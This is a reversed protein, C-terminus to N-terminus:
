LLNASGLMNFIMQAVESRKIPTQPGINLDKEDLIDEDYCFALASRSWASSKVYDGFQALIDRVGGSDVKTDMGCLDAARAVMVAAEEKTIVGAPNFATASVGSVIGYAHAAGVPGAYWAEGPVDAFKDGKEAKLGLGKVVLAAFEARTMTADPEFTTETKGSVIGRAALAEIAVHNPHANAGSTDEFTKEFYILPQAKVDPHKGGLGEGAKVAGEQPDAVKVADNMRYLSSQGDRARRAAVLSYFAQETAMMNSGGGDQTHLFGQGPSYCALLNDLLTNGNKVFRADDLPLGLETLAVIIQVVSETNAENWSSFGGKDDQKKSMCGLAEDIVRAVDERDQYKALAQLAMGTIDPDSVSDGSSAAATGGLLSFGGDSLQCELIRDVYMERTAQVKAAPNQPLPYNGSDLALLAWVPGNLGQWITKEYDGLPKLLDYGAVNRPDKGISTLAVILRSYETYKKDHLNGKCAQVYNEVRTYYDQYYKEPVAYGSRALGLVAWEGGVSGVQPESVTKHIYAATDNFAADLGPGGAASMVGNASLFLMLVLIFSLGKRIKNM